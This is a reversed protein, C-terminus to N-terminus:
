WKGHDQGFAPRGSLHISSGFPALQISAGLGFFNTADSSAIMNM